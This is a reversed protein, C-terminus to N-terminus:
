RPLNQCRLLIVGGKLSKESCMRSLPSGPLSGFNVSFVTIGRQSSLVKPDGPPVPSHQQPSRHRSKGDLGTSEARLM